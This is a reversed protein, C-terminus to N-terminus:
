DPLYVDVIGELMRLTEVGDYANTNYVIIPNKGAKQIGRIIALMQPIQHSPSVFGVINETKELVECIQDIIENFQIIKTSRVNSNSSIHFNQCYLCQLNCKSFFINCIGNKGSIVPEEGNHCCIASIGFGANSNCYGLLSSYRNVGCLRPCLTCDSLLKEEEKTYSIM